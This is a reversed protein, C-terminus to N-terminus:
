RPGSHCCPRLHYLPQQGRSVDTEAVGCRASQTGLPRCCFDFSGRRAGDPGGDAMSDGMLLGGPIGVEMKFPSPHSIVWRKVASDTFVPAEDVMSPSSGGNRFIASRGSLWSSIALQLVHSPIYGWSMRFRSTGLSNDGEGSVLGFRRVLGFDRPSGFGRGGSDESMKTQSLLPTPPPKKYGSEALPAEAFKGERMRVPSSADAGMGLISRREVFPSVPGGTISASSPM